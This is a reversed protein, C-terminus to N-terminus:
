GLKFWNKSTKVAVETTRPTTALKTELQLRVTFNLENNLTMGRLNWNMFMYTLHYFWYDERAEDREAPRRLRLNLVM